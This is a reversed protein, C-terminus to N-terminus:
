NVTLSFINNQLITNYFIEVSISAYDLKICCTIFGSDISTWKIKNSIQVKIIFTMWTFSSLHAQELKCQYITPFVKFSAFIMILNHKLQYITDLVLKQSFLPSTWDHTILCNVHYPQHCWHKKKLQKNIYSSAYFIHYHSLRQITAASGEFHLSCIYPPAALLSTASMLPDYYAEVMERYLHTILQLSVRVWLKCVTRSLLIPRVLNVQITNVWVKYTKYINVNTSHCTWICNFPKSIAIQSYFM